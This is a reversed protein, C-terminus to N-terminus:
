SEVQNRHSKPIIDIGFHQGLKVILPLTISGLPLAFLIGLGLAKVLERFQENAHEMEEANAEGRTFRLYIKIMTATEHSEDAMAQELLSLKKIIERRHAASLPNEHFYNDIQKSVPLSTHKQDTNKPMLNQSFKKILSIQIRSKLVFISYLM